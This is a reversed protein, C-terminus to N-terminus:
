GDVRRRADWAVCVEHMHAIHCLSTVKYQQITAERPGDMWCVTVSCISYGLTTHGENLSVFWEPAFSGM